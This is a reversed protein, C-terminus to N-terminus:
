AVIAFNDPTSASFGPITVDFSIEPKTLSPNSVMRSNGDAITCDMIIKPTLLFKAAGGAAALAAVAAAIIWYLRNDPKPAEEVPTITAAKAVPAAPQVVEAVPLPEPLPVEAAIEPEFMPEAIVAAAVAPASIKRAVPKRVVPQPRPRAVITTKRVTTPLKQIVPASKVFIVEQKPQEVPATTVDAQQVVPKKKKKKFIGGIAKAADGVDVQVGVGGGTGGTGSTRPQPAQCAPNTPSCQANAIGSQMGLAAVLLAAAFTKGFHGMIGGWFAGLARLRLLRGIPENPLAINNIAPNHRSRPGATQSQKTRLSIPMSTTLECGSQRIKQCAKSGPRPGCVAGNPNSHNSISILWSPAMAPYARPRYPSPPLIPVHPDPPGDISKFEIPADDADWDDDGADKEDDIGEFDASDESLLLAARVRARAEIDSRPLADDFFLTWLEQASVGDDILQLYWDFRTAVAMVEPLTTAPNIRDLLTLSLKTNQRTFTTVGEARVWRSEEGKIAATMLQDAVIRRAIILAAEWGLNFGYGRATRRLAYGGGLSKGVIRAADAVVGHDALHSLFASQRGASWGDARSEHRLYAAAPLAADTDDRLPSVTPINM